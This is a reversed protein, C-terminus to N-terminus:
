LHFNPEVFSILQNANNCFQMAAMEPAHPCSTTLLAKPVGEVMYSQERGTLHPKFGINM